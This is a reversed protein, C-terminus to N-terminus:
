KRTRLQVGPSKIPDGIFEIGAAELTVKVRELTGSRSPPIGGSTEFRQITRLPVDAMESLRLASIGLLGRAARIQSANVLGV